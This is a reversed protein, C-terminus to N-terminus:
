SLSCAGLDYARVNVTVVTESASLPTKVTLEGTERDLAFHDGRNGSLIEYRVINNPPEADTDTAQLFVPSSFSARDPALILEYPERVFRPTEDNVDLVRIILPVTSRLGAGDEDRAEVDM